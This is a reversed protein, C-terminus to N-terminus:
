SQRNFLSQKMKPVWSEIVMISIEFGEREPILAIKINIYLQESLALRIEGKFKCPKQNSAIRQGVKILKDSTESDGGVFPNSEIMMTKLDTLLGEVTTFKGCVAMAGTELDLEPIEISCTESKLVDRSLDITNKVKLTIKKGKDSFGSGSKVENTKYGCKECVSAM